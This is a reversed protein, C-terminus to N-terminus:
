FQCNLCFRLYGNGPGCPHVETKPPTTTPPQLSVTNKATGTQLAAEVKRLWSSSPLFFLSLEFAVSEQQAQQM